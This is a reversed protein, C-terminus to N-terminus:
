PKSPAESQPNSPLLQEPAPISRYFRLPAGVGNTDLLDWEGNEDATRTEVTTWDILNTSTQVLYTEGSRGEFYIRKSLGEPGGPETRVSIREIPLDGPDMEPPISDLVISLAFPSIKHESHTEDLHFEYKGLGLKSVAQEVSDVWNTHRTGYFCCPDYRNLIQTQSRNAGYSGMVYLECYNAISYFGPDDQEEDGLGELGIRLYNPVSGAVPFSRKIRPDLAAYVTTTWGGGSLGIMDIQDYHYHADVYDLCRVIPELFFRFPRDLYSFIMQHSSLIISGVGPIPGVPFSYGDYAVMSFALVSYGERVLTPIVFGPLLGANNLYVDESLFGPDHGSHYIFLKNNNRLPHFHHVISMVGYDMIVLYRDIRGLNGAENFLSDYYSVSANREVVDPMRDSPWGEEGWIYYILNTRTAELDAPTSIRVAEALWIQFEQVVPPGKGDTLELSVWQGQPASVPPTGSLTKTIPSFVLWEPLMRATLQVDTDDDVDAFTIQYDYPEGPYAVGVPASTFIPPDNVPRVIMSFSRKASRGSPDAVEITITSEGFRDHMPFFNITREEMEGSLVINASPLLLANSSSVTLELDTVPVESSGIRFLIAEPSADEDVIQDLIQSITPDPPAGRVTLPSCVGCILVPLVFGEIWLVKM